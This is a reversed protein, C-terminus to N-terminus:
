FWGGVYIRSERISVITKRSACNGRGTSRITEVGDDQESGHEQGEELQGVELARGCYRRTGHRDPGLRERLEQDVELLRKM